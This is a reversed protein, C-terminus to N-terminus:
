LTPVIQPSGGFWRCQVVFNAEIGHAAAGRRVAPTDESEFREGLVVAVLSAGFDFECTASLDGREIVVLRQEEESQWDLNKTLILSELHDELFAAAATPLDARLESSRFELMGRSDGVRRDVYNVRGLRVGSFASEAQRLLQAEDFILCAGVHDQAYQNWMRARAYGRHFQVADGAPGSPSRDGTFCAIRARGRLENDLAELWELWEDNAPNLDDDISISPHWTASERADNMSHLPSLRIRGSSLIAHLTNARTYHYLLSAAPIDGSFLAM